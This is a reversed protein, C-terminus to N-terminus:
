RAEAFYNCFRGTDGNLEQHVGAEFTIGKGREIVLRGVDTLLPRGEGPVTVM